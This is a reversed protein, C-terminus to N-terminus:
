RPATETDNEIPRVVVGASAPYKLDFFNGYKSDSTLLDHDGNLEM